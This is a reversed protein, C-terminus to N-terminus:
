IFKSNTVNQLRNINEIMAHGIVSQIDQGTDRNLMRMRKLERGYRQRCGQRLSTWYEKNAYRHWHENYHATPDAFVIQSWRAVLDDVFPSKDTEIYDQLTEIGLKRNQSWNNTKIEFRFVDDVCNYQLGKDYAKLQFTDHKARHYKGQLNSEKEEFHSEGHLYCRNIISGCQIPPTLNVGYELQTIRINSPTICLERELRAIAQVFRAHGFQDANHTGENAYKHISGGFVVRGSAYETIKMNDHELTWKKMEDGKFNTFFKDPHFSTRLRHLLDGGSIGVVVGRVYDLPIYPYIEKHPLSAM